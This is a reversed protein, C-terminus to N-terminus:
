RRGWETACPLPGRIYPARHDCWGHVPPPDCHRALGNDARGSTADRAAGPAAFACGSTFAPARPVSQGCCCAGWLCWCWCRCWGQTRRHRRRSRNRRPSPGLCARTGPGRLASCGGCRAAQCGHSGAGGREGSPVAAPARQGPRARPHLGPWLDRPRRQAHCGAPGGPYGAPLLGCHWPVPSSDTLRPFPPPSLPTSFPHSNVCCSLSCARAELRPSPVIGACVCVVGCVCGAGGTGGGGPGGAGGGGWVVM